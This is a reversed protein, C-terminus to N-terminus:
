SMPMMYDTLRSTTKRLNLSLLRTIGMMIKLSISPHEYMLRNFRDQTLVILSAKTKAYVSASRPYNDIISMEGISRGKGINASLLDDSIMSNKIINLMGSVVFCMFDGKDGEKFLFEGKNLEIYDLYTSITKIEKHILKDFISLYNLLSIIESPTKKTKSLVIRNM